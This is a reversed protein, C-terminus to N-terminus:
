QIKVETFHSSVAAKDGAPFDKGVCPLSCNVLVRRCLNQEITYVGEGEHGIWVAVVSDGLLCPHGLERADQLFLGWFFGVHICKEPKVVYVRERRDRCNVCTLEM